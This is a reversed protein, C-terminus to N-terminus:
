QGTLVCNSTKNSWEKQLIYKHGHIVQNYKKASSVAGFNWACKDGNENGASDFWASGRPDTISENHEHSAVSITSDAAFNSNPSFSVGCAALNTGTYPMNSYLVNGTASHYACFHTFACSAGFCSGVKDATFLFFETTANAVWGKLAIVRKVEARIQADSLCKTVGTYLTCGNAPYAKTDLYSGGFTSTTTIFSKIGGTISYYQTDSFYVNSTLNDAAAVDTFYRNILSKYSSNVLYGAPVWYIAYIKNTHMVPGNHYIMKGPITITPIGMGRVLVAGLMPVNDNPSTTDPASDAASVPFVFAFAFISVILVLAFKKLM